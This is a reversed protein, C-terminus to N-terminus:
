HKTIYYIYQGQESHDQELTHETLKIFAAFDRVSGADTAVVKLCEGEAMKNLQMKAKLLPMPCAEGSVDLLVDYQSM